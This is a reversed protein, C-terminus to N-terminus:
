CLCDRRTSLTPGNKKFFAIANSLLSTVRSKASCHACSQVATAPSKQSKASCASLIQMETPQNRTYDHYELGRKQDSCFVVVEDM